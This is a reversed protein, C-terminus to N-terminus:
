YRETVGNIYLEGKYNELGSLNVYHDDFRIGKSGEEEFPINNRKLFAISAQGEEGERGDPFNVSFDYSEGVINYYGTYAYQHYDDGDVKDRFKFWKGDTTFPKIKSELGEKLVVKKGTAREIREKLILIVLQKERQTAM